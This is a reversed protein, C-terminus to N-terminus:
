REIGKKRDFNFPNEEGFSADKATLDLQLL